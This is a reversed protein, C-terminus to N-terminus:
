AVRDLMAADVVFLPMQGRLFREIDDVVQTGIRRSAGGAIHSTLVVNPLSRLPSDPAAPEPDSVDLVASIRGGRLAEILAAEDVCSGRSTNIFLTGEQMAALEARGVLHHTAPLAPTHLTVADCSACLDRVSEVRTVALAAADTDSLFPDFVRVGASLPRALEIVRRGVQSAGVVGITSEHLTRRPTVQPRPGGRWTRNLAADEPARRLGVILWGLTYEAVGAAIAPACSAVVLGHRQTHPGVLHRVSGAAHLWLRLGPCRALLEPSPGPTGWSGVGVACGALLAAAEDLDPAAPGAHWRVAGLRELRTRDDGHFLGGVAAESIVVGIGLAADPGMDGTVM